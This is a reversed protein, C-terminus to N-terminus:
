KPKDNNKTISQKILWMVVGVVAGIVGGIIASELIGAFIIM